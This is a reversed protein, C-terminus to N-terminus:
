WDFRESHIQHSHLGAAMADAEVLDLWAAPGCIYLDSNALQPFVSMLTVGRQADGETMWGPGTRARHGVMKYFLAGKAAAIEEIEDWLYTEDDDAARLVITAEGLAFRSDELLARVATVGIGAAIVALKPSTRAADSFLGYPGEISVAAGVPVGSLSATGAGLDRVTIRAETDTPMASLSM